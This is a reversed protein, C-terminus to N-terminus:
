KGTWPNPPPDCFFGSSPPPEDRLTRRDHEVQPLRAGLSALRLSETEPAAVAPPTKSEGPEAPTTLAAPASSTVEDGALDAEDDASEVACGALLAAAVAGCLLGCMRASLARRSM